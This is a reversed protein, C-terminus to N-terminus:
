KPRRGPRPPEDAGQLRRLEHRTVQLDAAVDRLSDKLAKTKQREEQLAARTKSLDAELPGRAADAAQQISQEIRGREGAWYGKAASWLAAARGGVAKVRDLAERAESLARHAAGRTERADAEASAIIRDADAKAAAAIAKAAAEADAKTKEVFADAKGKLHSRARVATRVAKHATTEMRWQERTLRRRGPGIRALGCPLGVQQFYRDQWERMADRFARDSSKNDKGAATAAAKAEYGPHLSAARMEPGDDLLYAHLHPHKEDTHRVVTKLRDGYEARLWAVSRQEWDGLATPDAKTLEVPFSMVATALTNQTTRIKRKNGNKSTVQCAEARSDHLARLADLPMGFVLEPPSPNRVHPCAGDLRMAEDLVNSSSASDKGGKRSYIEM